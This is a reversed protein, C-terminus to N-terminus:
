YGMAGCYRYIWHGEHGENILHRVCQNAPNVYRHHVYPGYERPHCVHDMKSHSFSWKRAYKECNPGPKPSRNRCMQASIGAHLCESMTFPFRTYASASSQSAVFLVLLVIGIIIGLLFWRIVYGLYSGDPNHRRFSRYSM